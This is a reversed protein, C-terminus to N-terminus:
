HAELWAAAEERSDFGMGLILEEQIQEDFESIQRSFIEVVAMGDGYYNKSLVIEGAENVGLVDHMPCYLPIERQMSIYSPSFSEIKWLDYYQQAAAFDAGSVEEPPHIRRTVSHGCRLFGMTQIIECDSLVANETESVHMANGPTPLSIPLDIEEPLKKESFVMGLCICLIALSMGIVSGPRVAFLMRRIRNM